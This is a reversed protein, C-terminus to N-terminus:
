KHGKRGDHPPPAWHEEPAVEVPAHKKNRAAEEKAAKADAAARNTGREARLRAREDAPLHGTGQMGSVGPVPKDNASM